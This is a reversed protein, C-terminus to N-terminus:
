VRSFLVCCAENQCIKCVQTINPEFLSSMKFFLNRWLRFIVWVPSVTRKIFVDVISIWPYFMFSCTKNMELSWFCLKYKLHLFISGLSAYFWMFFGGARYQFTPQAVRSENKSLGDCVHTVTLSIPGGSKHPNCKNIIYCKRVGTYVIWNNLLLARKQCANYIRASGGVEYQFDASVRCCM